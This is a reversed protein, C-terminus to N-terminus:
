VTLALNQGQIEPSLGVYEKLKGRQARFRSWARSITSQVLNPPCYVPVGREVLSLSLSLSLSSPISV